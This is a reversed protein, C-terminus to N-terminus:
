FGALFWLFSDVAASAHIQPPTTTATDFIWLLYIAILRIVDHQPYGVANGRFKSIRGSNKFRKKCSGFFRTLILFYLYLQILFLSFYFKKRANWLFKLM